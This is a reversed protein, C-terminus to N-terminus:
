TRRVRGAPLGVGDAAAPAAGYDTRNIYEGSGKRSIVRCPIGVVVANDPVDRSVVCNAGIAVNNGVRVKGFIKAGPAVYVNDGIVPHGKREGRNTKGITVGQSINCNRGIVADGSVFIGGFHGIYFGSGIRSGAYLQIGYKYRYRRLVLDAVRSFHRLFPQGSLYGGTRMWFTCKFGPEGWALYKLFTGLSAAGVYRYLDSKVLFRYEEFRM